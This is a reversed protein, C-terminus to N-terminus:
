FLQKLKAFETLLGQAVQKADVWYDIVLSGFQVQAPPKVQVHGLDRPYHLEFESM